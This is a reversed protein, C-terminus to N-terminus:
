QQVVDDTRNVLTRVENMTWADNRNDTDINGQAGATFQFIANPVDNTIGPDAGAWDAAVITVSALGLDNAATGLTYKYRVSSGVPAWSIQDLDAFVNNEAFWSTEATFIGGLNTKAESQKSKAQFRLFNPIAIAALIGIIAVVIMLEILTFGKKGKKGRLMSLM